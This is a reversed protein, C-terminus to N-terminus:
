IGATEGSDTEPPLPYPLPLLTLAPGAETGLRLVGAAAGGIRVVVLLDYGGDPSVTADVVSGSAQGPLDPAYVPMGPQAEAPSRARVMRQKPRGLYHMRAVIEQGPYCGKKFDVGGLLELNLMQPVFAEGTQPYVRPIGAAIDLWAWAPPGVPTARAGLRQWQARTTAPPAILLFRPGPGPLRLVTTDARTCCGDIDAPLDGLMDRLLVEARPGALGLGVLETDADELMVKARLVFMRLRTLISEQLSAPLQLYYDAGRRFVRLVALVRGKANCWAALQSHRDDVRRADNSFQGNLFDRADAGHVRILAQDSVDVLVTAKAAAEIEREPAAFGRVAGNEFRAGRDQLFSKWELNM